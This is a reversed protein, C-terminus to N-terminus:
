LKSVVMDYKERMKRKFVDKAALGSAADVM